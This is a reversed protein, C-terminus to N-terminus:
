GLGLDCPKGGAPPVGLPVGLAEYLSDLPHPFSQAAARSASGNNGAEARNDVKEEFVEVLSQDPLSWIDAGTRIPM